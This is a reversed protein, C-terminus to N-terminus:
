ELEMVDFPDDGLEVLLSVHGLGDCSCCRVRGCSM